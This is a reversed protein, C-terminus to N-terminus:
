TASELVKHHLEATRSALMAGDVKGLLQGPVQASTVAHVHQDAMQLQLFEAFSPGIFAIIKAAPRPVRRRGRVSVRGLASTSTPPRVKSSIARERKCEKPMRSTMM